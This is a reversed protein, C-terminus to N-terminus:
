FYAIAHNKKEKMILYCKRVWDETEYTIMDM